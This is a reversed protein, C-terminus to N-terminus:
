SPINLQQHADDNVTYIHVDRQPYPIKIDHQKFKDWIKLMVASKINACGNMPDEIWFRVELDVSNDGFSVLLCNPGPVDLVRPTEKAAEICLEIAQHPNTDYHIGVPCRLRVNNNTHSWNEMRQNILEDNPILHETGDRTIMSIYRASLRNVKGYRGESVITDGPKISNDSLLIIGAILNSFVKQLGLGIGVAIAGGFLAFATLDIGVTYLGFLFAIGILAFKSIKSFLARASLSMDLKSHLTRDIMESISLAIWVFIAVSLTSTILDYVSLSNESSDFRINDLWGTVLPLYGTISLAAFSWIVTTITHSLVPSRIFTSGMRILLLAIGLYSAKLLIRFDSGQFYHILIGLGLLLLFMLPLITRRLLRYFFSKLRHRHSEIPALRVRNRIQRSFYLAITFSFVVVGCQILLAQTLLSGTVWITFLRLWELTAEIDM